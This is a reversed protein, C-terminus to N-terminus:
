RVVPGSPWTRWPWGGTSSCQATTVCCSRWRAACPPGAGASGPWSTTTASCPWCGTASSTRPPRSAPGSCCRPRRSSSTPPSPTAGTGPRWCPRSCTRGPTVAGSPSCSSSTRRVDPRRAHRGGRDARRVGVSIELLATSARVVWGSLRAPESVPIGLMEGIVTVPLPFAVAQMLDTPGADSGADIQDLLDDLLREVHPRLREVTRPTFAQSVLGRLRTHDPPDLFLLSRARSRIRALAAEAEPTLDVVKDERAGKGFRPDRLVFQSDEFRSVVWFGLGSHHVPATERVRAYLPYPDRRGEPTLLLEALM